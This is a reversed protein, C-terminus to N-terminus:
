GLLRHFCALLGHEPKGSLEGLVDALGVVGPERIQHALITAEGQDDGIGVVHDGSAIAGGTVTLSLGDAHRRAALLRGHRDTGLRKTGARGLLDPQQLGSGPIVGLQLLQQQGVRGIHLPLIRGGCLIHKGVEGGNVALRGIQGPFVANVDIVPIRQGLPDRGVGLPQGIGLHLIGPFDQWSGLRHGHQRQETGM